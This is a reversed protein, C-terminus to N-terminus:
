AVSMMSSLNLSTQKSYWGSSGIRFSRFRATFCPLTTPTRPPWPEPLFVSSCIRPCESKGLVPETKTGPCRRSRCTVRSGMINSDQDMQSFRVKPTFVLPTLGPLTIVIRSSSRMSLVASSTFSCRSPGGTVGFGTSGVSSSSSSSSGRASCSCPASCQTSWRLLESRALSCRARASMVFGSTRMRWMGKTCYSLFIIACTLSTSWMCLSWRPM